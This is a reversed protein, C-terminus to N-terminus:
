FIEKLISYQKCYINGLDDGFGASKIQRYKLMWELTGPQISVLASKGMKDMGPLRIITEDPKRGDKPDVFM